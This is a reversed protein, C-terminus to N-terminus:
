IGKFYVNYDKKLYTPLEQLVMKDVAEKPINHINGYNNTMEIILIDDSLKLYPKLSKLKLFMNSVVVNHGSELAKRTSKYCWRFAHQINSPKWDYVNDKTHYMDQEYHLFKYKDRIERALTSKGSGPLGRIIVLKPM